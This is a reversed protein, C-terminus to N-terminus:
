HFQCDGDIQSVKILTLDSRQAPKLGPHINRFDSM